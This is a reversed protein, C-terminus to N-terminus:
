TEPLNSREIQDEMLRRVQASAGDWNGAVGQAVVSSLWRAENAQLSGEDVSSDIIEAIKQAQECKGSKLEDTLKGAKDRNMAINFTAVRITQRAPSGAQSINTKNTPNTLSKEPHAGIELECGIFCVLNDFRLFILYRFSAHFFNLFSYFCFYFCCSPFEKALM